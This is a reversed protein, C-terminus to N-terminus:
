YCIWFIIEIIPVGQYYYIL